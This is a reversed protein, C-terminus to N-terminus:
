EIQFTLQTLRKRWNEDQAWAGTQLHLQSLEARVAYNRRLADFETATLGTQRLLQDDQRIDYVQLVWQALTQWDPAQPAQCPRSQGQAYGQLFRQFSPLQLALGQDTLWKKLLQWSGGLKGAFSHGAIHPTALTVRKVVEERLHPEREWVDLVVQLQSDGRLHTLLAQEDIVPGRSANLLMKNQEAAAFAALARGDFLHHTAHKGTTVLPVHCSIVQSALVRQWDAHVHTAGQEVLPPDYYHVNLGLGTLRQGAATGTNGAGVIAVEGNPLSGNQLSLAAVASLVYDGVANANVGPCSHFRIGAAKLTPIDVHDTGITATGLWKLNPAHALLSADVTTVSRIFLADARALLEMPPQRESYTSVELPTSAQANLVEILRTFGPLNADAVLLM